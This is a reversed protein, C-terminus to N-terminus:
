GRWEYPNQGIVPSLTHGNSGAPHADVTAIVFKEFFHVILDYTLSANLRQLHHALGPRVDELSQLAFVRTNLKDNAQPVVAHSGTVM